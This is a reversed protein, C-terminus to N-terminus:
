QMEPPETFDAVTYDMVKYLDVSKMEIGYLHNGSGFNVRDLRLLKWDVIVPVTVILPCVAGPEVGTIEMVDEPSAIRAKGMVGKLKKFSVRDSGRLFLATFGAKSKVLITKCIEEPNIEGKSFRVVDDVSVARDTLEMVRYEVGSGDLIDEVRPVM